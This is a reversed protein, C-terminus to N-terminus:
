ESKEESDTQPQGSKRRREGPPAKRKPVPVLALVALTAPWMILPFLYNNVQEQTGMTGEHWAQAYPVEQLGIEKSPATANRGANRLGLQTFFVFFFLLLFVSLYCLWLCRRLILASGATLAPVFLVIAEGLNM